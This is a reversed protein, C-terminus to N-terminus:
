IVADRLRGAGLEVLAESAPDVRVLGSEDLGVLQDAVVEFTGIAVPRLESRGVIAGGIGTFTSTLPKVGGAPPRQVSRVHLGGQIKESPCEFEVVLVIGGDRKSEVIRVGQVFGTLFLERDRSGLM